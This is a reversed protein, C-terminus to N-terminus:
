SGMNSNRHMCVAEMLSILGEVNYKGAYDIANFRAGDLVIADNPSIHYCLLIAEPPTHPNMALIHLGNMGSEDTESICGKGHEQIINRIMQLTISTDFCLKRFPLLSLADTQRLLWENVRKDSEDTADNNGDIYEYRIHSENIIATGAIIENGLGKLDIGCPLKFIRLSECADFAYSEIKRLTPPLFIAELSICDAFALKGIFQLQRSLQIFVLSRCGFFAGDEIRTVGDRLIVSKLILKCNKFTRKKIVTVRRDVIVHAANEPIRENELGRYLFTHPHDIRMTM